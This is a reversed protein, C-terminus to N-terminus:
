QTLCFYKSSISSLYELSNKNTGPFNPVALKKGKGSLIFPRRPPESTFFGGAVCSIDTRDRPRFSLRSISIDVWELIREQLIGYVTSGPPGCDMPDCLILCSKAVSSCRLTNHLHHIGGEPTPFASLKIYSLVNRTADSKSWYPASLALWWWSVSKRPKTTGAAQGSWFLRSATDKPLTVNCVSDCSSGPLRWTM